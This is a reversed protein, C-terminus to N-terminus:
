PYGYGYSLTDVQEVRDVGFASQYIVSRPTEPVVKNLLSLRKM